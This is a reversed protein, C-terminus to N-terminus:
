TTATKCFTRPLRIACATADQRNSSVQKSGLKEFHANLVSEHLHHRHQEGTVRDTFHYTAPFLWQWGWEKNANPYKRELADPLSVRGLGAKLDSDHQL